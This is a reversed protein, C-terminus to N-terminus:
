ESSALSAKEGPQARGSGEIHGSGFGFNRGATQRKAASVVASRMPAMRCRLATPKVDAKPPNVEAVEIARMDEVLGPHAAQGYLPQFCGGASLAIAMAGALRADFSWM